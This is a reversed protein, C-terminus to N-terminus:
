RILDELSGENCKKEQLFSKMQALFPHKIDSVDKQLETQYEILAPDYIKDEDADHSKEYVKPLGNADQEMAMFEPWQLACFLVDKKFNENYTGDYAGNALLLADLAPVCSDTHPAILSVVSDNAWQTARRKYKHYSPDKNLTSSDCYPVLFKFLVDLLHQILIPTRAYKKNVGSSEAIIRNM